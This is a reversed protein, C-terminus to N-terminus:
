GPPENQGGAVKDGSVGNGRAMDMTLRGNQRLGSVRPVSRISTSRNCSIMLSLEFIFPDHNPKVHPLTVFSLGM